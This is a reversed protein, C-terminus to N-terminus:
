VISMRLKKVEAEIAKRFEEGFEDLSKLGGTLYRHAQLTVLMSRAIQQREEEDEGMTEVLHVYGSILVRKPLKDLLRRLRERWTMQM